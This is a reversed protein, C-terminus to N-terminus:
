TPKFNTSGDPYAEIDYSYSIKSIFEDASLDNISKLVRNFDMIKLISEPYYIAMFFMYAEDGTLAEGKQLAQERRIKAVNYVSAARHHGDAIYTCPISSFQSSFFVSDEILCKSLVHETGDDPKVTAYPQHGQVVEM